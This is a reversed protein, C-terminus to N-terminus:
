SAAVWEAVVELKQALYEERCSSRQIKGSSTKPISGPKILVVAFVKIGADGAVTRVIRKIIDDAENSKDDVEQVLVLKAEGEHEISFAACCGPRCAPHSREAVLEIDQPYHNVGRIIILDKHRGAIFIVNDRLFGLDGTRLYPGDGTDKRHAGFTEETAEKRNWYGQTVCKGSVWIEGVEDPGCHM